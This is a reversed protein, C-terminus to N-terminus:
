GKTRIKLLENKTIGDRELVKYTKLSQVLCQLTYIVNLM